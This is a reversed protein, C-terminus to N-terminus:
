IVLHRVFHLIIPNFIQPFNATQKKNKNSRGAYMIFTNRSYQYDCHSSLSRIKRLVVVDCFEFYRMEIALICMALDLVDNTIEFM